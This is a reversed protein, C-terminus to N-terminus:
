FLLCWPATRRSSVGDSGDAVNYCGCSMPLVPIYLGNSPVMSADYKGKPPYRLPIGVIGSKVYMILDIRYYSYFLLFAKHPTANLHRLNTRLTLHRFM